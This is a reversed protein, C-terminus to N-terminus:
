LNNIKNYTLLKPLLPRLFSLISILSPGIPRPKKAISSMASSSSRIATV